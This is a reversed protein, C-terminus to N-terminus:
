FQRPAPTVKLGTDTQTVTARMYHERPGNEGIDTTLRATTMPAPTYPLGGLAAIAPRLFIHGCVLSSVPNGPLGIMPVGNFLGAMLPKGPRMALKYFSLDLGNEGAVQQVLDHDGVSAGGMTVIMDAGEALSFVETLNKSTDRAIPLLRTIAGADELMAKLGFHNSAIIQDRRPSEGPWVLEDGTPIIAIIPRRSVRITPINMAALLSLDAFGLRHPPDIRHGQRFDGGAPRVYKNTDFGSQVTITDGDRTADEQILIATAGEPVPAGTFIRMAQGSGLAIDSHQGAAIEGVVQLTKGAIRDEIKIAYGDMASAAFPPQDRTAIVPARLIRGNADETRVTEVSIPKLLDAIRAQGEAVSIM